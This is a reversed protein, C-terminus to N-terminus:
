IGTEAQVRGSEVAAVLEAHDRDNQDAYAASFAAIARDFIDGRGLYGAIAMSDGSRAHARALTWGCVHAYPAFLGLAMTAPDVAAKGDWLQRVYFDRQVGDFSLLRYWGLLVDSAAQMLRQGEVVRRGQNRFQSRGAFRELVSNQAQKLQLFLPDGNGTGLMLVVWARTGVSGVGVVKRAIQLFRYGEFLHRRDDPLSARYKALFETMTDWFRALGAEDLLATAPVLLPPENRFRPVGDITVTLKSLARLSDKSAAKNLGRQVSGVVTRDATAQLQAMVTAMNLRAYWVDLHGMTAFETMAERYSRVTQLVIARRAPADMGRQRTAIEFSAALRKVDWEWPGPLTEDFDNIDFVLTRDPSEYVGFNLLHADGCLQTKLGSRPTTALDSAMILAAGRYFALPSEMMRGYRIPVLDQERSAAQTMLLGVPDPRGPWPKWGANTSRPTEARAAKGRAVHEAATLHPIDAFPPQLPESPLLVPDPAKTKAASSARTGTKGNSHATRKQAMTTKERTM